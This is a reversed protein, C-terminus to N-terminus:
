GIVKYGDVGNINTWEWTCNDVLEECEKRTPIQWDNGMLRYSADYSIM